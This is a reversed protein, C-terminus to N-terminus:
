ERRGAPGRLFADLADDELYYTDFDVGLRQRLNDVYQFFRQDSGSRKWDEALLALLEEIRSAPRPPGSFIGEEQYEM